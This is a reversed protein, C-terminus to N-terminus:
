CNSLTIVKYKQADIGLEGPNCYGNYDEGIVWFNYNGNSISGAVPIKVSCSMRYSNTGSDAVYSKCSGLYYLYTSPVSTVTELFLGWHNDNYNHRGIWYVTITATDGCKATDPISLSEISSISKYTTSCYHSTSGSCTLEVRSPVTTSVITTSTSTSTTSSTTSTSTSTVRSTTSTTTSTITTTTTVLEYENRIEDVSLAKNWIKVEDITGNFQRNKSPNNGILVNNKTVNMTGNQNRSNMLQGNVYIKVTSGNWTGAVHSWKNSGISNTRVYKM